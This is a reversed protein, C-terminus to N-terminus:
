SVNPASVLYIVEGSPIGARVAALLEMSFLKIVTKIGGEVSMPWPGFSIAGNEALIPGNANTPSRAQLEAIGAQEGAMKLETPRQFGPQSFLILFINIM